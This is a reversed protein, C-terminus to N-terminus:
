ACNVVDPERIARASEWLSLMARHYRKPVEAGQSFRDLLAENM